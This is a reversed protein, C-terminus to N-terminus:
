LWGSLKRRAKDLYVQFSSPAKWCVINKDFDFLQDVRTKGFPKFKNQTYNNPLHYVWSWCPTTMTKRDVPSAYRNAFGNPCNEFCLGMAAREAIGWDPKVNKSRERDFSPSALYEIALNRDLIYTANYPFDLNVFSYNGVEVSERGSLTSVGIQDLFYLTNDNNNYEVRQFSPILGYRELITNYYLFYLFNNYSLLIDDEVYIFHTYSSNESVFEDSILYKHCWPLLWPDPLHPFTAIRMTKKSWVM